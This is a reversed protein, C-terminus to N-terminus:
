LKMLNNTVFYAIGISCSDSEDENEFKMNPFKKLVKEQVLQKDARGTGTLTKKITSPAFFIQESDSFLYQTLGHVKYVAQTSAAHRSFGSEIVILHPKYKKKLKLFEDAIVRLRDKHEMKSTTSVSMTEIPNGKEDFVCVGSNSLSLDFALIYEM